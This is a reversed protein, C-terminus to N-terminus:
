TRAHTNKLSIKKGVGKAIATRMYDQQLVTILNGRTQRHIAAIQIIVMATIPIMIHMIYDMLIMFEGTLICDIIRLSTITPPDGVGPSKYGFFPFVTVGTNLTVQVIFLGLTFAPFGAGIYLILRIITDRKKNRSGAGIKGIKVGILTAIVMSLIALELTRPLRQNIIDWVDSDRVISISVGWNGTFIDKIFIFYQVIVPKDLGLHKEMALYKAETIPFHLRSMIITEPDMIVRSIFFVITIVGLLVPISILIRKLSYTLLNMSIM